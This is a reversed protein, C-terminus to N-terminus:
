GDQGDGRVEVGGALTELYQIIRHTEIVGGSTEAEDYLARLAPAIRAPAGVRAAESLYLDLDKKGTAIRGGFTRTMISRPFKVMTAESRGTSVNIVDLLAQADLGARVGMVMGEFAAMLSASSLMNNVLKATQGAGPQPGVHFINASYHAIIPRVRALVEARGGCISTLTGNEAGARGNSVPADLLDIGTGDLMAAIRAIADPGITSTEVYTRVKKGKAVGEPGGAVEHSVAVSPLCAIVVEARDAVDRPSTAIDTGLERFPALAADSTDFVVMPLGARAIRMAMPQGMIGLGIFGVRDAMM